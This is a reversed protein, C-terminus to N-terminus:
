PQTYKRTMILAAVLSKVGIRVIILFFKFSVNHLNQSLQVVTEADEVGPIRLKLASTM